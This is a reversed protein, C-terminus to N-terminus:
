EAAEAFAKAMREAVLKRAYEDMPEGCNPCFHYKIIGKWLCSSCSYCKDESIVMQGDKLGKFKMQGWNKWVGM